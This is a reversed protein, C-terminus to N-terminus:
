TLWWLLAVGFVAGLVIAGVTAHVRGDDSEAAARLCLPMCLGLAFAAAYAAPTM